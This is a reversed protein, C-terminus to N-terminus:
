SLHSLAEKIWPEDPRSLQGNLALQAQAVSGCVRHMSMSLLERPDKGKQPSSTCRLVADQPLRQNLFLFAVPRWARKAM